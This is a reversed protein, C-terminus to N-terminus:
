TGNDQDEVLCNNMLGLVADQLMNTAEFLDYTGDECETKAFVIIKEDDERRPRIVILRDHRLALEDILERDTLFEISM